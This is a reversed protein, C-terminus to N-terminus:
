KKAEAKVYFDNMFRTVMEHNEDIRQRIPIRRNIRKAIAVRLCQEPEYYRKRQGGKSMWYIRADLDIIGHCFGACIRIKM